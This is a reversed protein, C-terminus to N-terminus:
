MRFKEDEPEGYTMAQIEREKKRQTYRSSYKGRMRKSIPKEICVAQQRQM